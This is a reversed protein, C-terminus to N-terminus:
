LDQWHWVRSALDLIWGAWTYSHEKCPKSSAGTHPIFCLTIVQALDTYLWSLHKQTSSSHYFGQCVSLLLPGGLHLSEASHQCHNTMLLLCRLPAPETYECLPACEGEPSCPVPIPLPEVPALGFWPPSSSSALSCQQVWASEMWYGSSQQKYTCWWNKRNVWNDSGVMIRSLQSNTKLSIVEMDHYKCSM